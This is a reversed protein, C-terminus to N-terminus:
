NTEHGNKFSLEMEPNAPMLGSNILSCQLKKLEDRAEDWWFKLASSKVKPIFLTAAKHLAAVIREYWDEIQAVTVSPGRWGWTYDNNSASDM